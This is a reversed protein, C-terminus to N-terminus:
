RDLNWFMKKPPQCVLREYIEHCTCLRVHLDQVFHVGAHGFYSCILLIVAGRIAAPRLGAKKVHPIVLVIHLQHPLYKLLHGPSSFAIARRVMKHLMCSCRCLYRWRVHVPQVSFSCVPVDLVKTQLLVTGTM